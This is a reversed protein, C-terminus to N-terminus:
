PKGSGDPERLSEFSTVRASFTDGDENRTAAPAVPRSVIAVKVLKYRGRPTFAESDPFM